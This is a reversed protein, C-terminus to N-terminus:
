AAAGLSVMLVEAPLDEVTAVDHELVASALSRLSRAKSAFTEARHDMGRAILQLDEYTCERLLKFQGPGVSYRAQLTEQWGERIAAVKMSGRAPASIAAAQSPRGYGTTFKGHPRAEFIVERVLPKLADRLVNLLEEQPIRRLIEDALEDPSRLTSSKAVQRVLGRLNFGTM